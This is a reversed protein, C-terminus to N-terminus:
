FVGKPTSANVRVWVGDRKKYTSESTLTWAGRMGYVKATLTHTVRM